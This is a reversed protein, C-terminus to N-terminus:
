ALGSRGGGRGRPRASAPVGASQRGEGTAACVHRDRRHRLGRRNSRYRGAARDRMQRRREDRTAGEAEEGSAMVDIQLGMGSLLTELDLRELVSHASRVISRAELDRALAQIHGAAEPASAVRTVKWGVQDASEQLQSMLESANAGASRRVSEARAEVSQADQSLATTEDIRLPAPEGPARGLARRVNRLFEDRTSKNAM